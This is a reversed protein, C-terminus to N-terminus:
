KTEGLIKVGDAAFTLSEAMKLLVQLETEGAAWICIYILMGDYEEGTHVLTDLIIDRGDLGGIRFWSPEQGLLTISKGPFPYDWGCYVALYSTGEDFPIVKPMYFDAFEPGVEPIFAYGEAIDVAIDWDLRQQRASLKLQRDGLRVSAILRDILQNCRPDYFLKESVRISLYILTDDPPQLVLECVRAFSLHYDYERPVLLVGKIGDALDLLETTFYQFGETFIFEADGLLDGASSRFQEQALIQIALEGDEWLLYTEAEASPLAGMIAGVYSIEDETGQPMSIYLRDELLSMRQTLPIPPRSNIIVTQSEQNWDVESGLNEAIFRLPVFVRGELLVAHVDLEITEGNVFVEQKRPFISIFANGFAVTAEGRENDWNVNASLAEGVFRIPVMVRNDQMFPAVDSDVQKGNVMIKIGQEGALMVASSPLAFVFVVLLALFGIICLCSTQSKIRMINKM